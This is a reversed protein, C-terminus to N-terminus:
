NGAVQKLIRVLSALSLYEPTEAVTVLAAM